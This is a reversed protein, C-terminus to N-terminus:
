QNKMKSMIARIAMKAARNVKKDSNAAMERLAPLASRADKGFAALATAAAIRVEPAKDKLADTLVPVTTEPDPAIRGLATAAEKRVKASPDAKAAELLPDIADKVDSARVQGRLGLQEAAYARDKASSGSKLLALNKPTDEKRPVQAGLRSLGGVALLTIAVIATRM